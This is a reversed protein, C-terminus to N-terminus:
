GEQSLVLFRTVNTGILGDIVKSEPLQLTQYNEINVGVYNIPLGQLCGKVTNQFIQTPLHATSSTSETLHTTWMRQMSQCCAVADVEVDDGIVDGVLWNFYDSM